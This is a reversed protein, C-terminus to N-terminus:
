GSMPCTMKPLVELGGFAALLRLQAVFAKGYGAPSARKARATMPLLRRNFFLPDANLIRKGAAKFAVANENKGASL